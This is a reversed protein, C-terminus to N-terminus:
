LESEIPFIIPTEDDITVVDKLTMNGDHRLILWAYDIAEKTTERKIGKVEIEFPGYHFQVNHTKM